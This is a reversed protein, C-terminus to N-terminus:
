VALRLAFVQTAKTVKQLLFITSDLGSDTCLKIHM